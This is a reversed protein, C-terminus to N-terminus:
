ADDVPAARNQRGPEAALDCAHSVSRTVRSRDEESPAGRSAEDALRRLGALPVRVVREALRVSPIRGTRILRYVESRSVGLLRAVEIPRLFVLDDGVGHEDPRTM